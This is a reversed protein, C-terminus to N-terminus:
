ILIDWERLQLIVEQDEPSTFRELRLPAAGHAECLYRALAESCHLSKGDAFLLPHGAQTSFALRTAPSLLPGDRERPPEYTVTDRSRQTIYRGFWDTLLASDQGLEQLMSRMKAMDDPQIEGHAARPKLDPDGFRKDPSWHVAMEQSLDLLLDGHSPARFGVSYTTSSGEAIGWHAVGPPLYLVDGPTVQWTECIDFDTLIKCDTDTRLPTDSDCTQGIHWTRAGEAQILFVDYYDFHPGVSGQDSAHSVMIDDVRWSPLFYFQEKLRQLEPLLCDVAQVLLTWHSEPLQGFVDDSLPGCIVQWKSKLANGSQHPKEIFLRSEIDEDLAYGALEDPDIQPLTSFANPILLPRKQWYHSLFKEISLNGLHTLM